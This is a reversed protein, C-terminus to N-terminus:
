RREGKMKLEILMEAILECAKKSHDRCDDVNLIGDQVFLWFVRNKPFHPLLEEFTPAPMSRGGLRDNVKYFNDVTSNRLQYVNDMEPNFTIRQSIIVWRVYSDVIIGAEVLAKATDLSVCLDKLESM